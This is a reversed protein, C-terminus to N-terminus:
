FLPAEPYGAAHRSTQDLRWARPREQGESTSASVFYSTLVRSVRGRALQEPPPAQEHDRDASIGVVGRVRVRACAYHSPM